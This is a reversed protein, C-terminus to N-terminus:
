FKLLVVVLNDMIMHLVTRQLYNVPLRVCFYSVLSMSFIAWNLIVLLYYGRKLLSNFEQYTFPKLSIVVLSNMIILLINM